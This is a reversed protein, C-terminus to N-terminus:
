NLGACVIGRNRAVHVAETRNRVNLQRFIITLHSRVTAASMNLKIAIEKNTKGLLMLEFVETQRETLRQAPSQPVGTPFSFGVLDTTVDEHINLLSPPIYLSGSLVLRIANIIIERPMSKPLFGKAGLRLATEVVTPRDSVSIIMVPISPYDSVLTELLQYGEVGPLLLDLLIFDIHHFRDVITLAQPSDKAELIEIQDDWESLISKFGERVVAHDDVILIKM